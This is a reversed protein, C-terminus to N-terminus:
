ESLFSGNAFPMDRFDIQVDPAINLIRGDCLQHSESRIDGYVVHPNNKNHHFMRSGCCPDLIPKCPNM